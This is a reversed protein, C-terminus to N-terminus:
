GQVYFESGTLNMETQNCSNTQSVVCINTVNVDKINLLSQYQSSQTENLNLILNFVNSTSCNPENVFLFVYPDSFDDSYGQSPIISNNMINPIQKLKILSLLMSSSTNQTNNLLHFNYIVPNLIFRPVSHNLSYNLVANYLRDTFNKQEIFFEYLLTDNKIQSYSINYLKNLVQTCNYSKNYIQCISNETTYYGVLNLQSNNIFRSTPFVPYVAENCGLILENTMNSLIMSTFQSINKYGYKSIFNQIKISNYNSINNNSVNYVLKSATVNKTPLIFLIVVVIIIATLLLFLLYNSEIFKNRM